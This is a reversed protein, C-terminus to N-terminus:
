KVRRKYPGLARYGLVKPLPYAKICVRNSQNGGLVYVLGRKSDFRIFFGVHGQWRSNGRRLIVLNGPLVHQKLTDRGVGLWSRALGKDTRESGVITAVHNVFASCWAISDRAPLGVSRLMTNIKPNSKAGPIEREGYFGLAHALLVHNMTSMHNYTIEITGSVPKLNHGM